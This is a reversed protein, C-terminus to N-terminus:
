RLKLSDAILQRSDAKSPAIRLMECQDKSMVGLRWFETMGIGIVSPQYNVASLKKM